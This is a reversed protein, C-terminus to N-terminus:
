IWWNWDNALGKTDKKNRIKMLCESCQEIQPQHRCFWRWDTAKISNKDSLYRAIMCQWSTSVRHMSIFDKEDLLDLIRKQIEYPFDALEIHDSM